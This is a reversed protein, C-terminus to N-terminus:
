YTAQRDKNSSPCRTLQYRHYVVGPVSTACLSPASSTPTHSVSRRSCRLERITRLSSFRM